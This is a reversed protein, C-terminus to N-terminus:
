PVVFSPPKMQAVCGADVRASPDRLFALEIADLCDGHSMGDPMHGMRPVRVIVAHPMLATARKAYAPPTIPDREGAFALVPVDSAVPQLTPKAVPEIRWSRCAAVQAALRADGFFTARSAAAGRDADFFPVDEACTVSLLVAECLMPAGPGRRKTFAGYDGTAAAHITRPLESAGEATYLAHRGFETFAGQDVGPSVHSQVFTLDDRLKPFAAGCAPERACDEVVLDLVRAASTAHELPLRADM